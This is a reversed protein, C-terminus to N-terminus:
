TTRARLGLAYDANFVGDHKWTAWVIRAVQGQRLQLYKFRM